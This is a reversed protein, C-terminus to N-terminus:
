AGGQKEQGVAHFWVKSQSQRNGQATQKGMIALYRRGPSQMFIENDRKEM